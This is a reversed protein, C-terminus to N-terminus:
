HDFNTESSHPWIREVKIYKIHSLTVSNIKLSDYNM